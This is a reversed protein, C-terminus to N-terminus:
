FRESTVNRNEFALDEESDDFIGFIDFLEFFDQPAPEPAPMPLCNINSTVMLLTFAICISKM